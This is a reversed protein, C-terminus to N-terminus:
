KGAARVAADTSVVYREAGQVMFVLWNDSRFHPFQAFENRNMRTLRRTEGTFFDILYINSSNNVLARFEPDHQDVFGLERWDDEAVVKHYTWFREDFSFNGKRGAQCFTGVEETVVAPVPGPVISALYFKYALPIQRYDDDAGTLRSSLLTATPSFAFDGQFPMDAVVEMQNRYITGDFILTQFWAKSVSNFPTNHDPMGGIDGAFPGTVALLDAGGLQTGISQYLGISHEDSSSCGTQTWDIKSVSPNELVRQSCIGTRDGQFLFGSNDAFFSPDYYALVPIDKVQGAAGLLGGLDTIVASYDRDPDSPHTMVGNAVFRGDASSRMWFATTQPIRHLIRMTSGPDDRGWEMGYSTSEARPFVDEAGSKKQTFCNLPDSDPCGFMMIGNALNRARWGSTRMREAHQRLKPSVSSECQSPFEINGLLEELFPRSPWGNNWTMMRSFEAADYEGRNGPPMKVAGLFRQFHGDPQDYANEFLKRFDDLHVGSSYLGLRHPTFENNRMPDKLCEIAELLEQRTRKVFESLALGRFCEYRLSNARDGWDSINQVNLAHCTSCLPDAPSQIAGMRGLVAEATERVTQAQGSAPSLAVILAAAQILSAGSFRM